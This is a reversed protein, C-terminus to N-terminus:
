CFVDYPIRMLSQLESTHEESRLNLSLPGQSFGCFRCKFTCVNTYNINRNRVYTVTDGVSARRLEDAVQAIAPVEAGRASFLTTIEDEGVEQGLLVGELVEGVPGHWGERGSAPVLHVPETPAGSYWATNRRGIQVVEAGTGAEVAAKIQEPLDSSCVDSGWDSIRM